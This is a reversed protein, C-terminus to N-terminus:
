ARESEPDDLGGEQMQLIQAPGDGSFNKYFPLQLSYFRTQLIRKVPLEYSDGRYVLTNETRGAQPEHCAPREGGRPPSAQVVVACTPQVVRHM